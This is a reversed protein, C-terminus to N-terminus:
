SDYEAYWTARTTLVHGVIMRDAILAGPWREKVATLWAAYVRRREGVRCEEGIPPDVVVLETNRFDVLIVEPALQDHLWWSDKGPNGAEAVAELFLRDVEPGAWGRWAYPGRM